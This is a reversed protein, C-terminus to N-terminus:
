YRLIADAVDEVPQDILMTFVNRTKLNRMTRAHLAHIIELDEDDTGPTKELLLGCLPYDRPKYRHRHHAEGHDVTVYPHVLPILKDMFKKMVGSFFGM